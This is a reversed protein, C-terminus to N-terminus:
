WCDKNSSTNTTGVEAIDLWNLQQFLISAVPAWQWIHWIGSAIVGLRTEDRTSSLAGLRSSLIIYFARLPLTEAHLYIGDSGFLFNQLIFIM